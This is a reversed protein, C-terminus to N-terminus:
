YRCPRGQLERVRRNTQGAETFRKRWGASTVGTQFFDLAIMSHGRRSTYCLTVGTLCGCTRQAQCLHYLFPPTPTTPYPSPVTLLPIRPHPTPPPHLPRPHSHSFLDLSLSESTAPHSLLQFCFTKVAASFVCHRRCHQTHRAVHELRHVCCQSVM